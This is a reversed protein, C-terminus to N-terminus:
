NFQKTKAKIFLLLGSVARLGIEITGFCVTTTKVFISIIPRRYSNINNHVSYKPLALSSNHAHSVGVWVTLGQCFINLKFGDM